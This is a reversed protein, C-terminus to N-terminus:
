GEMRKSAEHIGARIRQYTACRCLNGQMADDIDQDTPAPNQSLLSAAQMIQGSQCYGCQPVQLEVWATRIADAAPSEIGEITTIEAGELGGDLGTLKGLLTGAPILDHARGDHRFEFSVSDVEQPVTREDKRLQGCAVIQEGKITSHELRM